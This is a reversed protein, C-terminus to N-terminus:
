QKDKPRVFDKLIMFILAALVIIYLIDIARDELTRNKIDIDKWLTLGITFAIVAFFFNIGRKPQM